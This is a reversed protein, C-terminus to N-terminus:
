LNNILEKKKRWRDMLEDQAKKKEAERADNRKNMEANEHTMLSCGLFERQSYLRACKMQVVSIDIKSKHRLAPERIEIIESDKYYYLGAFLPVETLQILGAPCVYSIYNPTKEESLYEMKGWKRKKKDRLFDSRSIKVEFEFTYGGVGVSLLDVEWSFIMSANAIVPTHNRLVQRRGIAKIIEKTM